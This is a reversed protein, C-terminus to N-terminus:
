ENPMEGLDEQTFAYEGQKEGYELIIYCDSDPIYKFLKGCETCRRFLIDGEKRCIIFILKRSRCSEHARKKNM